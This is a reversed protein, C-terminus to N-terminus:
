RRPSFLKEKEHNELAFIFKRIKFIHIIGLRIHRENVDNSYIGIFYTVTTVRVWLLTRYSSM